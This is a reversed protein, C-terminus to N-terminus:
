KKSDSDYVVIFGAASAYVDRVAYWQLSSSASEADQEDVKALELLGIDDTGNVRLKYMTAGDMTAVTLPDVTRAATLTPIAILPTNAIRQKLWKICESATPVVVQRMEAQSVFVVAGVMSFRRSLMQKLISGFFADKGAKPASIYEGLVDKGEAFDILRASKAGAADIIRQLQGLSKPYQETLEYVSRLPFEHM